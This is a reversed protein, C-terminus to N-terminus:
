VRPHHRQARSWFIDFNSNDCGASRCSSATTSGVACTATAQVRAAPTPASRKSRRRARTERFALSCGRWSDPRRAPAAPSSRRKAAAGGVCMASCGVCRASGVGAPPPGDGDGPPGWTFYTNVKGGTAGGLTLANGADCAHGSPYNKEAVKLFVGGSKEGVTSGSATAYAAAIAQDGEEAPALVWAQAESGAVCAVLVIAVHKGSGQTTICLSPDAQTALVFAGTVPPPPPGPPGPPSPPTPGAPDCLTETSRSLQVSRAWAQHATKLQSFLQPLRAKLDHTERPDSTLNFLYWQGAASSDSYNSDIWSCEGTGPNFVLKMEEDIRAQSTGAGAGDHQILGIAKGRTAPMDAEANRIWPLLSIGDLAWSDFEAPRKLGLIDLM